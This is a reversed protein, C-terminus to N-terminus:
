VITYYIIISHQTLYNNFVLLIVQLDAFGVILTVQKPILSKSPHYQEIYIYIYIHVRLHKNIVINSIYNKSNTNITKNIGPFYM